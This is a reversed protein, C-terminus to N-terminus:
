GDMANSEDMADMEDMDDAESESQWEGVRRKWCAECVDVVQREKEDGVQVEVCRAEDEEGQDERQGVLPVCCVCCWGAGLAEDEEMREVYAEFWKDPERALNGAVAWERAKGARVPEAAGEPTALANLQRTVLRDALMERGGEIRAVHARRQICSGCLEGAHVPRAPGCWVCGAQEHDGTEVKTKTKTATTPRTLRGLWQSAQWQRDAVGHGRQKHKPICAVLLPPLHALPEMQGHKDGHTGSGALAVNMLAVLDLSAVRATPPAHHALLLRLEPKSTPPHPRANSASAHAKIRDALAAQTVSEAAPLADALEEVLELARLLHRERASSVDSAPIRPAVSQSMHDRVQALVSGPYVHQAELTNLVHAWTGIAKRRGREHRTDKNNPTTASVRSGALSAVAEVATRAVQTSMYEIARWTMEADNALVSAHYHAHMKSRLYHTIESLLPHIGPVATPPHSEGHLFPLPAPRHTPIAPSTPSFFSAGTTTTSTPAHSAEADSSTTPDAHMSFDFTPRLFPHQPTTDSTTPPLDLASTKAAASASRRAPDGAITKRRKSAPEVIPQQWSRTASSTSRQRKRVEAQRKRQVLSETETDSSNFEDVSDSDPDPCPWMNSPRSAEDDGDSASDSLFPTDDMYTRSLALTRRIRPAPWRLPAFQPYPGEMELILKLQTGSYRDVQVSDHLSGVQRVTDRAATSTLPPTVIADLTAFASTSESKVTDPDYEDNDKESDSPQNPDESTTSELDSSSSSQTGSSHRRHADLDNDDEDEDEDEDEDDEDDEDDDDDDEDDDQDFAHDTGAAAYISALTPPPPPSTRSPAHNFSFTSRAAPRASSRPRSSPNM